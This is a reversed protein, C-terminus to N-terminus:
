IMLYMMMMMKMLEVLIAPRVRQASRFLAKSLMIHCGAQDDGVFTMLQRAEEAAQDFRHLAMNAEWKGEVAEALLRHIQREEERDGEEGEDHHLQHLRFNADTIFSRWREIALFFNCEEDLAKRALQHASSLKELPSLEAPQDDRKRRKASKAKTRKKGESENKEVKRKTPKHTKKKNRKM